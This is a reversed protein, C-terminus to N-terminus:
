LLAGFETILHDPNGHHRPLELPTANFMRHVAHWGSDTVSFVGDDRAFITGDPLYYLTEHWYNWDDDEVERVECMLRAYFELESPADLLYALATAILTPNGDYHAYVDGSDLSRSQDFDMEALGDDIEEREARRVARNAQTKAFTHWTNRGAIHKREHRTINAESIWHTKM